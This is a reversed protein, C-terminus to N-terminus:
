LPNLEGSSTIRFKRRFVEGSPYERNNDCGAQCADGCRDTTVVQGNKLIEYGWTVAGSGNVLVIELTNDGERIPLNIRGSDGCIRATSLTSGNLIIRMEDDINFVRAAWQNGGTPGGAFADTDGVSAFQGAPNRYTRIMGTITDTVEITYEVNSLAGYFIWWNGNVGRGDLAKLVLEVNTSNFFWFYGTDATLAVATGQGTQNQASWTARVQFRNSNLCLTRGDPSCTALPRISSNVATLDSVRVTQSENSVGSPPTSAASPLPDVSFAMTDGVSAFRGSPNFYTKTGGTQTDTVRLTYEVNSLAGFFIWWRGNVPRGDLAKVVLEVNERNFFWFYGTDNTLPVASGEGSQNPVRWSVSVRFRNNNLCLTNADPSCSGVSGVSVAASNSDAVGCSNRIRVWYSTSATLSPSTFSPSNSGVPRSTEGSNGEFWQYSLPATGAAAVTLPATGGSSISRSSPHSTISPPSCSSSVSISATRSNVSGCSNTVRVWYSTSSQASGSFTPSNSGVPRSVDGSSGNYWQYSLPATGRASVSLTFSGGSAVNQGQPENDIAPSQCSNAVFVDVSQRISTCGNSLSLTYRTSVTPSVYRYGSLNVGGLGVIEASTGWDTDWELLATQGASISTPTARFYSITPFLVAGELAGPVDTQCSYRECYRGCTYWGTTAGPAIQILSFSSDSSFRWEFPITCGGRNQFRVEWLYTGPAVSIPACRRQFWLDATTRWKQWESEAAVGEAPILLATLILSLFLVSFGRM